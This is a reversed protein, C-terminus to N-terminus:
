IRRLSSGDRVRKTINPEGTYRVSSGDSVDVDLTGVLGLKLSSGDTARIRATQGQLKLADVAASDTLAYSQSAALGAIDARAGDSVKVDLAKAEVARFTARAGDEVNIAVRDGAAKEVTLRAGDAVRYRQEVAANVPGVSASSGDKVSLAFDAASVENIRLESGDKVSAEFFKGTAADLNAHVADSIALNGLQRYDISVEISKNIRLSTAPKLRILLTGNEVRSEVLPEINDDARIVLKETGAPSRRLTVRISDEIEVREFATVARQVEVIKGSGVVANGWSIGGSGVSISFKSEAMAPTGAAAALAIALAIAIRQPARAGITPTSNM